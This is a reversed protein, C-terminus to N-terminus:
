QPATTAATSRAPRCLPRRRPGPCAARARRRLSRLDSAHGRKEARSNQSRGHRGHQQDRAQFQFLGSLEPRRLGASARQYRGPDARPHSRRGARRRGERSPGHKSLHLAARLRGDAALPALCQEPLHFLCRGHRASASQLRRGRDRDARLLSAECRDRRQQLELHTREFKTALDGYSSELPTAWGLNMTGDAAGATVSFTFILGIAALAGRVSGRM